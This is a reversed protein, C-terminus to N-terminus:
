DRLAGPSCNRGLGGVEFQIAAAAHSRAPSRDGRDAFVSVMAETTQRDSRSGPETATAPLSADPLPDEPEEVLPPNSPYEIGELSLVSTDDIMQIDAGATVRFM